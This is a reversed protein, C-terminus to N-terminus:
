SRGLLDLYGERFSPYVYRYGLRQVKDSLVRKHGRSSGGEGRPYGELGMGMERVLFSIVDDRLSPERDVANFVGSFGGEFLFRVIGVADDRHIRNMYQVTSPTMVEARDSVRRVFSDRGPGYIGGYRVVGGSLGSNLLYREGLVMFRSPGAEVLASEEVCIEGERAAYVSTSSSYFFAPPTAQVSYRDVLNKLCEFYAVRYADDSFGDAAVAFYVLDVEPLTRASALSSFDCVVTRMGEVVVPSRRALTVECGAMLRAFAMGLYGAGAVLVRPSNM